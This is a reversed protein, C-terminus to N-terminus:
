SRSSTFALDEESIENHTSHEALEKIKQRFATIEDGLVASERSAHNPLAADLRSRSIVDACEPTLGCIRLAGGYQALREQLLVLQAALGTPMSDLEELELVVRYIFHRAAVKWIQDSLEALKEAFARTPRVKIIL